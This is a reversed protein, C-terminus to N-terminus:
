TENLDSLNMSGPAVKRWVYCEKAKEELGRPVANAQDEVSSSKFMGNYLAQSYTIKVLAEKDIDTINGTLIKDNCVNKM